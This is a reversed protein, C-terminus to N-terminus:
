SLASMTMEPRANDDGEWHVNPARQTISDGEADM